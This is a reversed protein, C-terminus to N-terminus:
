SDSMRFGRANHAQTATWQKRNSPWACCFVCSVEPLRVQFYVLQLWGIVSILHMPM